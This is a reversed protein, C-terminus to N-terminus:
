NFIMNDILRTKGITAAVLAVMGKSDNNLTTLTDKDLLEFYDLKIDADSKLINLAIAKLEEPTHQASLDRITFLSKSLLLAKSKETESLHVNRSSLALGEKNREIPCMVLEVPLNLIEVMKRIILVQQYDKQGFFAKTPNVIQFLKFVVQTVGQYHGPRIAGELMNELYGIDLHWTEHEEYMETVEPLFLYDCAAETLKEIDASVTRPYKELDKQDTFQTPNVFISCVVVDTQQKATKILSLHGSHLAGMTPVLGIKKNEKKLETLLHSLEAKSTFIKM